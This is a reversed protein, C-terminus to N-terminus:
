ADQNSIKGQSPMLAHELADVTTCQGDMSSAIDLFWMMSMVAAAERCLALSFLM